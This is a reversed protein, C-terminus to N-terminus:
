AQAINPTTIPRSENYMVAIIDPADIGGGWLGHLLTGGLGTGGEM